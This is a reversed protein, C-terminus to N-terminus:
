SVQPINILSELILVNQFILLMKVRTQLYKNCFLLWVNAKIFDMLPQFTDALTLKGKM